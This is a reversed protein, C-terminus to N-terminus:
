YSIICKFMENILEHPIKYKDQLAYPKDTYIVRGNGCSGTHKNGNMSNCDKNSYMFTTTEM